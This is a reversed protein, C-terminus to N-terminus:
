YTSVREQDRKHFEDNDKNDNSPSVTDMLKIITILINIVM